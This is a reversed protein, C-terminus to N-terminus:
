AGAQVEHEWVADRSVSNPFYSCFIAIYHTVHVTWFQFHPFWCCFRIWGWHQVTGSEHDSVVHVAEIRYKRKIWKWHIRWFFHVFFCKVCLLVLLKYEICSLLLCFVSLKSLIKIPVSFFLLVSVSYSILFISNFFFVGFSLNIVSYPPTLMDYSRLYFEVWTFISSFPFYGSFPQSWSPFVLNPFLWLSCLCFPSFSPFASIPPLLCLHKTSLCGVYLPFM